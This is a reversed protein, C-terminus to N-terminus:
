ARSRVRDTDLCRFLSDIDEPSVVLEKASCIRRLESPTIGFGEAVENFSRWMGELATPELSLFPGAAPVFVAKGIKQGMARLPDGATADTRQVTMRRLRCHLDM